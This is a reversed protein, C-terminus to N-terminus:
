PDKGSRFFSLVGSQLNCKDRVMFKKALGPIGGNPNAFSSRFARLVALSGLSTNLAQM